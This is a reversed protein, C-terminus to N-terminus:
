NLHHNQLLQDKYLESTISRSYEIVCGPYLDCALEEADDLNFRGYGIFQMKIKIGDNEVYVLEETM